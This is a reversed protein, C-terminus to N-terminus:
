YTAIGGPVTGSETGGRSQRSAATRRDRGCLPCRDSALLPEAGGARHERDMRCCRPRPFARYARDPANIASQPVAEALAIILKWETDPAEAILKDIVIRKIFVKRADNEQHGAKVGAFPNEAALKWRIARRWM